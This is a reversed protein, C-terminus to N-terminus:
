YDSQRVFERFAALASRQDDWLEHSVRDPESTVLRLDTSAALTRVQDFTVEYYADAASAVPKIFVGESGGFASPTWGALRLTLSEGDAFLTVSEFGDRQDGGPETPLTSWIGLWLYYRYDGMRNVAFPALYVYDRAYAARAYRDTYFVAPETARTVTVATLPDMTEQLTGRPTSCAACSGVLIMLFTNRIKNM